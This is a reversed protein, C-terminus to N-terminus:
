HQKVDVSVTRVVPSPSCLVAAEVKVCSRLKLSTEEETNSCMWLSWTVMAVSLSPSGLVDVEFKESSRRESAERKKKTAKHGCLGYSSTLVSLM